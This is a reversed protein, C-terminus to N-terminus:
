RETCSYRCEPPGRQPQPGMFTIPNPLDGYFTFVGEESFDAEASAEVPTGLLGGAWAVGYKEAIEEDSADHWVFYVERENGMSDVNIGRQLPFKAVAREDETPNVADGIEMTVMDMQEVKMGKVWIEVAEDDLNPGFEGVDDGSRATPLAVSDVYSVGDWSPIPTPMLKVQGPHEVDWRLLMAHDEHQTNHCHEMYTGAFERFRLAVEVMVGSDEQPGIRYVDKRAWKEWEPPAVGNRRLIIGEEFHIHVPHSWSGSNMIRWVELGESNKTPAASLRRPDMGFGKGGNTEIVWPKDDTPQREFEFSRHTASALEEETPRRLPIMKKQGAVYEAPDLSLDADDYRHVRFELFKGVVPDGNIWRDNVGDEDDDVQTPAYTGSVIDALPVPKDTVQGNKHQLM